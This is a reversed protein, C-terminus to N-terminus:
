EKKEFHRGAAMKSLNGGFKTWKPCVTEFNNGYKYIEIPPRRGDQIKCFKM